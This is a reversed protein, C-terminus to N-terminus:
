PSNRPNSRSSSVTHRLQGCLRASDREDHINYRDFMSRTKHGSISMAVTGTVGARVMDRVAMRRFDQFIRGVYKLEDRTWQKTCSDCKYNADVQQECKSCVMRGLGAM